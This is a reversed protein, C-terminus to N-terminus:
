PLSFPLEKKKPPNKNIRIIFNHKTPNQKYDYPINLRKLLKKGKIKSLAQLKGIIPLGKLLFKYNLFNKKNLLHLKFFIQFFIM